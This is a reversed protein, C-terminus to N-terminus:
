VNVYSDAGFDTKGTEQLFTCSKCYDTLEGTVLGRRLEQYGPGNWIELFDTEYGNGLVPNGTQCCPNVEGQQNVFVTRWPFNCYFKGPWNEPMEATLLQEDVPREDTTEVAAPPVEGISNASSAAVVGSADEGPEAERLADPRPSGGEDVSATPTTHEVASAGSTDAEAGESAAGSAVTTSADSDASADGEVRLGSAADLALPQPFRVEVGLERARERARELAANTREPCNLPSSGLLAKDFVILYVASVIPVDHAAAIEVIQPLEDVNEELLTVHLSHGFADRLGMERRLRQLEALNQMVVDFDAGTRIHDFTKKTAGDFSITLWGLHPLAKQLREGCMLMGNTTIDLKCSYQAVKEILEDFYPLLFAEGSLTPNVLSIHPFAKDAILRFTEVPLTFRTVGHDRLKERAMECGCMFCHLNCAGTFEFVMKMPWADVTPSGALEAALALDQNQRTLAAYDM